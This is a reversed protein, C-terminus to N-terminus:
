GVKEWARDCRGCRYADVPWHVDDQRSGLYEWEARHFIHCEMLRVLAPRDSPWAAIAAVTAADSPSVSKLHRAPKM